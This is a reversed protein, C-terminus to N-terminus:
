VLLAACVEDQLELGYKIMLDRGLVMPLFENYTIHQTIAVVIRRTEQCYVHLKNYGAVEVLAFKTRFCSRVQYLLEDNWHPNIAYLHEAIRNHERLFITHLVTLILQENVRNDGAFGCAKSYHCHSIVQM